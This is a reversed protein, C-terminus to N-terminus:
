NTGHKRRKENEWVPVALIRAMDAPLPGGSRGAELIMEAVDQYDPDDEPALGLMRYLKDLEEPFRGLYTQIPTHAWEYILAKSCEAQSYYGCRFGELRQSLPIQLIEVQM